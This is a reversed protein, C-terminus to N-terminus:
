PMLLDLVPEGIPVFGLREYLHIAARNEADVLLHVFRTGEALAEAVALATVLSGHGRGQLAPATGISSLYTGGDATLRRAVAAPLGAELLLLVAGGPRRGAALTEAGLAPVRDTEVDFARVLLRAVEMARLEPGHGVHELQLDRRVALTRALALCPGPVELIMSRDARVPRFGADGLRTALDEPRNGLALTRVHPLRGLTAFLTVIEDLRRDFAAAKAPWDPAAVRNWFPEPDTLDHLLVADGLDRLERAGWAHVSAEHAALRRALAGDPVVPDLM